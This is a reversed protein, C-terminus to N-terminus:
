HGRPAFASSASEKRPIFSYDMPILRKEHVSKNDGNGGTTWKKKVLYDGTIVKERVIKRIVAWWIPVETKESFKLFYEVLSTIGIGGKIVGEPLAITYSSFPRLKQGQVKINRIVVKGNKKIIRDFSVGSLTMGQDGKLFFDLLLHVIAGYMKVRYVHWGLVENMNFVRPYAQFLLERTLNGAPLSPGAFNAAHVAFDADIAERTADALVANWTTLHRDSNELAIESRGVVEHLKDAGYLRDVAQRCSDVMHGIKADPAVGNEVPILKYTKLQLPKGKQLELVVRGLFEGHSGAQVIPVTRGVKNKVLFPELLATHSHAGVIMDIDSTDRALDADVAVGLHTLAIVFDVGNKKLQKSLKVAVKLPKRVKVPSFRWKYYSEDTSLGIIAIKLGGREFIKYPLIYKKLGMYGSSPIKLNASLLSFKPPTETLLFDLDSAGMLWDHNGVAVADYQMENMLSFLLRGREPLYFIAGELFDGGDLVLYPMQSKEFLGKESDMLGKVSAYGGLEPHRVSRELFGHMDNTHLIGLELGFALSQTFLGLLLLCIFQYM